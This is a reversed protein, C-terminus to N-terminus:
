NEAFMAGKTKLVPNEGLSLKPIFSVRPDPLPSVCTEETDGQLGREPTVKLKLGWTTGNTSFGEGTGSTPGM